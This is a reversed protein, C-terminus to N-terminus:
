NAWFSKWEEVVDEKSDVRFWLSDEGSEVQYQPNHAKFSEVFDPFSAKREDFTANKTMNFTIVSRDSEDEPIFCELWMQMKRNAISTIKVGTPNNQLISIVNINPFFGNEPKTLFEVIERSKNKYQQLEKQYMFDFNAMPYLEKYQAPQKNDRFNNTLLFLSEVAEYAKDFREMNHCLIWLWNYEYGKERIHDLCRSGVGRGGYLQTGDPLVFYYVYEGLSKLYEYKSLM